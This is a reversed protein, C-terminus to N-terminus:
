YTDDLLEGQLDYLSDDSESTYDSSNQDLVLISISNDENRNNSEGNDSDNEVKVESSALIQPEITQIVPSVFNVQRKTENTLDMQKVPTIELINDSAKDEKIIDKKMNEQLNVYDGMLTNHKNSIEVLSNNLSKMKTEYQNIITLLVDINKDNQEQKIQIYKLLRCIMDKLNELTYNETNIDNVGNFDQDSFNKRSNEVPDGIKLFNLICINM